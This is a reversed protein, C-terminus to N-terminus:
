PHLVNDIIEDFQSDTENIVELPKFKSEIKGGRMKSKIM